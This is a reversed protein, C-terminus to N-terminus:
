SSSPGIIISRKKLVRVSIRCLSKGSSKRESSASTKELRQCKKRVSIGTRSFNRQGNLTKRRASKKRIAESTQLTEDHVRSRRLKRPAVQTPTTSRAPSATASECCSMFVNEFVVSGVDILGSGGPM